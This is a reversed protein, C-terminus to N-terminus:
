CNKAVSSIRTRIALAPHEGFGDLRAQEQRRVSCVPCVKPHMLSRMDAGVGRVCVGRSLCVVQFASLANFHGSHQGGSALQRERARSDDVRRKLELATLRPPVPLGAHASAQKLAQVEQAHQRAEEEDRLKQEAAQRHEEEEEQATKAPQQEAGEAHSIARVFSKASTVRRVVRRGAISTSAPSNGDGERGAAARAMEEERAKAHAVEIAHKPDGGFARIAQIKVVARRVKDRARAALLAKRRKVGEDTIRQRALPDRKWAVAEKERRIREAAAAAVAAAAEEKEKAQEALLRAEEFQHGKGQMKQVFDFSRKYDAHAAHDAPLRQQAAAVAKAFNEEAKELDGEHQWFVGQVYLELCFQEEVAVQRESEATQAAPKVATAKPTDRGNKEGPTAKGSKRSSASGTRSFLGTSVASSARSWLSQARTRHASHQDAKEASGQGSMPRDTSTDAGIADLDGGDGPAGFQFAAQM